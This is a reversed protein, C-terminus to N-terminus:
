ATRRQTRAPAQELADESLTEGMAARMRQQLRRRARLMIMKMNSPGVGLQKGTEAYSLGQVEVLALALRDRASLAAYALAYHQLFIVWAGCLRRTDEGHVARLPPGSSTDPLEPALESTGSIWRRPTAVRARRVVNAAITRVWSRFSGGHEDRFGAAYRYVNVFTDQLLDGPDLRAQQERVVWRLWSLVRAQAHEYLADFVDRRGTDRFLAMLETDIRDEAQDETEDPRAELLVGRALLETELTPAIAAALLNM